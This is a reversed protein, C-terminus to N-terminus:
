ISSKPCVMLNEAREKPDCRLAEGRRRDEEKGARKCAEGGREDERGGCGRGETCVCQGPKVRARTGKIPMMEVVGEDIRL